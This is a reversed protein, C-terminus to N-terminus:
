ATYSWVGRSGSGPTALTQEMDELALVFQDPDLQESCRGFRHRLLVKIIATLRDTKQDRAHARLSGHGLECAYREREVLLLRQLIDAETPLPARM